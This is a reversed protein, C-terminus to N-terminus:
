KIKIIEEKQSKMVEDKTVQLFENHKGCQNARM